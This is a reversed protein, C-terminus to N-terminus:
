EDAPATTAALRVCGPLGNLTLIDQIDVALHHLQEASRITVVRKANDPNGAVHGLKFGAVVPLVLPMAVTNVAVVNLPFKPKDGLLKQLADANAEASKGLEVFELAKEKAAAPASAPAAAQAQETSVATQVQTTTAEAQAQAQTAQENAPQTVQEANQQVAPQTKQQKQQPKSM